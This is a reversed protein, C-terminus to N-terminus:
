ILRKSLPHSINILDHLAQNDIHTYIQTTSLDKHGLLEQIVRLDAGNELLHTAFSHRLVHPSLLSPDINAECAVLKLLQGVRQRTIPGKNTLFLFDNSTFNRKKEFNELWILYQKLEAFIKHPLPLMREVQGKGKIFFFPKVEQTDKQIQFVNKKLNILESVRLGTAYMLSIIFSLRPTEDINKAAAILKFVDDRSLYKPLKKEGKPTKLNVAPDLAIYKTEYLYDYFQKISSLHRSISNVKLNKGSLFTLFKILYIENLDLLSHPAVFNVLKILDRRYSEATNFSAHKTAVIVELFEEILLINNNTM